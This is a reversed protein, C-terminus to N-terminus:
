KLTLTYEVLHPTSMASTQASIPMETDMTVPVIFTCPNGATGLAFYMVDGVQMFDLSKSSWTLIAMLNGSLDKFTEATKVTTKGTGGELTPTVATTSIKVPETVTIKQNYSKGDITSLEFEEGIAPVKFGTLYNTGALCVHITMKGDKVVLIGQNKYSDVTKLANADAKIRATYVGDSLNDFSPNVAPTPPAIVPETTSPKQEVPKQEVPNQEAPKQEAPKQEEPKQEAPKQEVPQEVPKQEAPKQEAPKQQEVPTSPTPTPEEKKGCAAFAFVMCFVLLLTVFKKYNM